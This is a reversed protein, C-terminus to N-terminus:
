EWNCHYVDAISGVADLAECDEQTLEDYGEGSYETGDAFNCVCSKKCSSFAVTMVIAAAAVFFVKKM